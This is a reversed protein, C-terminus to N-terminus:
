HAGVMPGKGRAAAPVRKGLVEVAFGAESWLDHDLTNRADLLIRNRMLTGLSRPNLHKFENHDTLHLVIDTEAFVSELTYLEHHWERVYPDFVKVSHGMRLLREAIIEAPSERIDDINGKYALGLVAFRPKPIDATLALARSIIVDPMGDNIERAMRTLRTEVPFQEVLFWPDVSICHGGVGPGPQNLHVRPHLNALSIVEWANIGCNEAMLALENALAINVDRYTNEMLKVMEATTADTLHISGEVFYLYLRKAMEASDANIGGIVRDNEILEKLLRGPLVREPCHALFVDRGVELGGEALIPAVVDVTTRPPSTSELIVLNGPELYPLVARTAEVVYRLDAKKGEKFPTPVALIFADAKAPLLSAKLNGSGVAASVLTKLGPEHIHVGGRNITDVVGPNVDVGLVDLGSTALISATPLGIYGLGLVCVSKM